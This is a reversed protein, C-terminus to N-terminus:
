RIAASSCPANGLNEIWFSRRIENEQGLVLNGFNTFDAESPTEDGSVISLGNGRVNLRASAQQSVMARLGFVYAANYFDNSAIRVLAGHFGETLPQFRVQFFTSEGPALETQPSSLVEFLASFDGSLEVLPQGTLVLPVNGENRIEFTRILAEQNLLFQGFDTLDEPNAAEDGNAILVGQGLVRMQPMEEVITIRQNAAVNTLTQVGGNPWYVTIQDVVTAAGLGVHLIPSHSSAHSGGSSLERLLSQGGAEVQVRSGLADRNSVTGVLKIQLWHHPGAYQNQYLLSHEGSNPTASVCAVLVDLDGDRDYDTYAMGRGKWPSDVGAAESVDAFTGNGQNLYLKNPDEPATAIFDAAPIQGNAVFLDPYTDHNVDIFATGWGTTLLGDAYTNEVGAATSVDVFTANGQNRHLVNRGLNTVYYDWDGDLDYDGIALGMGYLAANLGSAQSQDSVGLAPAENQWLVNPLVWEGFDNAILMDPDGDQDYDTFVVALGCGAEDMGLAAAMEVFTGNGQNLYLYDAYCLHDFGVVEENEILASAEDVYNAVYIDLWGDRNFDGATASLSFARHILGASAGVEAFTGDGQNHFLLCPSNEGTMVLLDPWGDNDYDFAIAGLTLLSETIAFGAELGIETFTGDGKNRYFQDRLQGSTLYVDEWGDQDYDLIAIGGGMLSGTMQLHNLGASQSVEQFLQAQAPSLLCLFGWFLVTSRLAPTTIRM